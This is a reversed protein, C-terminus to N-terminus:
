GVEDLDSSLHDRASKMSSFDVATSELNESLQKATAKLSELEANLDEIEKTKEKIDNEWSDKTTKFLSANEEAPLLVLKTYRNWFKKFTDKFFKLYKTQILILFIIICSNGKSIINDIVNEQLEFSQKLDTLRENLDDHEKQMEDKCNQFNSVTQFLQECQEQLTLFLQRTHVVRFTYIM